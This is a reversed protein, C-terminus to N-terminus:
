NIPRPCSCEACNCKKRMHYFYVLSLVGATIAANSFKKEDKSLLYTLTTTSVLNIFANERSNQIQCM